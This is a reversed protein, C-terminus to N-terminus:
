LRALVSKTRLSIGVAVLASGLLLATSGSDPVTSQPLNGSYVISYDAADPTLPDVTIIPDVYGSASFPGIDYLQLDLTVPNAVNALVDLQQASYSFSQDHGASDYILTTINPESAVGTSQAVFLAQEGGPTVPGGSIGGSVSFDVTVLGGPAPGAGNCVAAFDYKLIVGASSNFANAFISPDPLGSVTVTSTGHDALDNDTFTGFGNVAVSEGDLFPSPGVAGTVSAPPLSQAALNLASAILVIAASFYRGTFKM